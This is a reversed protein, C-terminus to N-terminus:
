KRRSGDPNRGTMMYWQEMTSPAGILKEIARCTWCAAHAEGHADLITLARNLLAKAEVLEETLVREAFHTM